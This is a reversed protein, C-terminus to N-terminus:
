ESVVYKGNPKIRVLPITKNAEFKDYAPKLTEWFGTLQEPCSKRLAILGANTLKAPFIDVRIASQGNNRAEVALLYIEKIKDDTVPVCGITVCNGHIYIDGGPHQKDGLIKDSKNPYDIGLSLYYNSSPNFANLLYFGEPVQLDGERRKPGPVGSSRCVAYQQLLQFRKDHKNKGWVELIQEQKFIRLYINLNSLDVGKAALLTKLEDEKERYAAAVRENRLQDAKFGSDQAFCVMGFSVIFLLSLLKKM